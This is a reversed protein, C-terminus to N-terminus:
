EPATPKQREHSFPDLLLAAGVLAALDDFYVNLAQVCQTHDALHGASFFIGLSKHIPILPALQTAVKAVGLNNVLLRLMMELCIIRGSMVAHLDKLDANSGFASIARRDGTLLSFTPNEIAVALFVAEGGHIDDQGATLLRDLLAPDGEREKLSPVSDCARRANAIVEAPYHAKIARSKQLMHPLADLRLVASAEYGLARFADQLLDTGALIIFADNDILLRQDSM